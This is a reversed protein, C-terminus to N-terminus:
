EEEVRVVVQMEFEVRIGGFKVVQGWVLVGEIKMEIVENGWFGVIELEVVLNQVNRLGM